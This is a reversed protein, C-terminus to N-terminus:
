PDGGHSGAFGELLDAREDLLATKLTRRARSLLSELAEVSVDLMAAAEVNTHDRLACLELAARQRPPLSDIAARVRAASDHATLLAEARPAADPREPADDDLLAEGRKRLRDYSVNAAIRGAWSEFRGRQPDYRGINRWVKVFTEQAVDEAEVPDNLLRRAIAHVVPLCRRTLAAMAGREGRAVARALAADGAQPEDEAEQPARSIVRLVPRM